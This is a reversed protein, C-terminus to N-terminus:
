EPLTWQRLQYGAERAMRIPVVSYRAMFDQASKADALTSLSSMLLQRRMRPYNLAQHASTNYIGLAYIYRRVLEVDATAAVQRQFAEDAGIQSLFADVADIHLLRITALCNVLAAELAPDFAAWARSAAPAEGAGAPPASAPVPPPAERRTPDFGPLASRLTQFVAQPYYFGLPGLAFLCRAVQRQDGRELGERMLSVFVPMNTGRKAYALGLPLCLLDLRALITPTEGFVLAPHEAFLRRTFTELMDVWAAPTDPLLLSFGLLEFLRGAPPLSEFLSRALPETAPFDRYAHVVLVLAGLLNFLLIDSSFLAALDAAVPELAYQPDLYPILRLFRAKEDPPLKFLQEGPIFESLLKVLRRAYGFSVAPVLVNDTVPALAKFRDLRLRGTLVKCWLDSTQQIMAERECQNIYLTISLDLIFALISVLDRPATYSIRSALDDLVGFVFQPNDQAILYLTDRTAARLDASGKVAATLFHTRAEPGIRYAAKLASRQALASELQLLQEILAAAEAPQDAHLDVLAEVALERQELSPSQALAALTAPDKSVTLLVRAAGYALPFTRADGLLSAIM